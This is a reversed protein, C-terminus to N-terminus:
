LSGAANERNAGPLAEMRRTSVTLNGVDAFLSSLDCHLSNVFAILSEDTLFASRGNATRSPASSILSYDHNGHYAGEFKLIKDRGTFARAFRMAYATAESGTSTFTVTEAHPIAQIVEDALPIVTDNLISFFHTGRDVQKHLAATVERHGHGLIMAGAGMVYDVYSNGSADFLRAGEGHSAVFRVSRPIAYGGLAGGPLARDASQLLSQEGDATLNRGLKAQTAVNVSNTM